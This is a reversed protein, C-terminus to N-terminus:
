ALLESDSFNDAQPVLRRLWRASPLVEALQQKKTGPRFPGSHAWASCACQQVPLEGVDAAAWTCLDLSDGGLRQTFNM